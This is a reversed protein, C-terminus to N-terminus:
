LLFHMQMTSKTFVPILYFSAFVESSNGVLGIALLTPNSFFYASNM